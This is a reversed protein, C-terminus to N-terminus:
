DSLEAMFALKNQDTVPPRPCMMWSNITASVPKPFSAASTLSRPKNTDLINRHPALANLEETMYNDLALMLSM